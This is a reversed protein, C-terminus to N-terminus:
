REKVRASWRDHELQRPELAREGVEEQSHDHAWIGRKDGVTFQGATAKRMCPLKGLPSGARRRQWLIGEAFVLGQM